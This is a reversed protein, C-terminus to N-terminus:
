AEEALERAQALMQSRSQLEAADHVQQTIDDFSLVLCPRGDARLTICRVRSWQSDPEAREEFDRHAEGHDQSAMSRILETTLVLARSSSAAAAAFINDGPLVRQSAPLTTAHKRWALNAAIITGCLDLVALRSRVADTALSLMHERSVPAATDCHHPLDDESAM